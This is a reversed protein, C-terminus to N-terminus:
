GTAEEAPAAPEAPEPLVCAVQRGDSRPDLPPRGADCVGAISHVCRPHFACGAPVARLSPVDMSRLAPRPKRRTVIPDPEPIADLLARTYPHQPAAIIRDTAGIEVIEGLYMVAIRGGRGFLRAMALDHTIFVFAVGLEAQQDALLRIISLRLSVDVMSVAEDAIIVKPELALARAIVVRQRQGGSLEHPYKYLFDGPPTLGVRALLAEVRERLQTRGRALRHRVLPSALTQQITHAPNLSAYPDQHIMQVERRFRKLARRDAVALDGGLYRMVGATPKLLGALIKGTTTKGCGSEGVLCLVEGPALALDVGRVVRVGDRESGFRLEVRELELANPSM